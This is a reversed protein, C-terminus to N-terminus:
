QSRAKWSEQTIKWAGNIRQFRLRKDGVDRHQGSTYHQVFQVEAEDAGLMRTRLREFRVEIDKHALRARRLQEWQTRSAADGKFSPDYFRLYTDAEGLEWSLKWAQVALEVEGRRDVSAPQTEPPLIVVAGAGLTSTAAAVPFACAGFCAAAIAIAARAGIRSKKM